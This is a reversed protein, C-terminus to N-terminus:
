GTRLLVVLPLITVDAAEGDLIRKRLEAALGYATV